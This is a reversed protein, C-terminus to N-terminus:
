IEIEGGDLLDDIEFNSVKFNTKPNHYENIKNALDNLSTDGSNKVLDQIKKKNSEKISKIELIKESVQHLFRQENLFNIKALGIKEQKLVATKMENMIVTLGTNFVEKQQTESLSKLISKDKFRDVLLNLTYERNEQNLVIEKTMSEVGKFLFLKNNKSSLFNLAEDSIKNEM